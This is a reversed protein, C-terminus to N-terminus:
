GGTRIEGYGTHKFRAEWKVSIYPTTALAAMRYLLSFM